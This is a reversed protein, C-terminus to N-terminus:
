SRELAEHDCEKPACRLQFAVEHFDGITLGPVICFSIPMTIIRLEGVQLREERRYRLASHRRTAAILMAAILDNLTEAVVHATEMTRTRVTGGSM